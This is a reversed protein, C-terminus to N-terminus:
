DLEGFDTGTSTAAAPPPPPLSTSTPAAVKVRRTSREAMKFPAAKGAAAAAAAAAADTAPSARLTATPVSKKIAAAEAPPLPPMSSSSSKSEVSAGEEGQQRAAPPSGAKKSEEAQARARSLDGPDSLPPPAHPGAAKGAAMVSDWSEPAQPAPPASSAGGRRTSGVCRVCGKCTMGVCQPIRDRVKAAAEALTEPVPPVEGPRRKFKLGLGLWVDRYMMDRCPSSEADGADSGTADAGMAAPRDIGASLTATTTTCGRAKADAVEDPTFQESVGARVAWERAAVHREAAASLTGMEGRKSESEDDEVEDSIPGGLFRSLAAKNFKTEWHEERARQMMDGFAKFSAAEHAKKVERQRKIEAREAVQAAKLGDTALAAAFAEARLRDDPFVPREDLYKLSPLAAILTKRYHKIKKTVPNGMLYIIRIDPLQKFVELIDPDDIRNQQLDLAQLSPCEALGDLDERSVLLNHALGITKLGTLHGINEVKKVANKSLNLTNILPMGELNEIVEICNEHLYLTRMEPQHDLGEIRRLGNGELWLCRLGTYEDMNEVKSWGKYQLYLKDNIEPTSYLELRRCEQKLAAKTMLM